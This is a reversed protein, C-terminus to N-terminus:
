HNGNKEIVIIIDKKYFDVKKFNFNLLYSEEKLMKQLSDSNYRFKESGKGADSIKKALWGIIGNFVSLNKIPESLIIKDSSQLIKSFLSHVDNHFHYLSGAIICVEAKPLQQINLLDVLRADLKKRKAYEVFYSNFDLGTWQIGANKCYQAIIIDGFCLELVNAPHHQELINIVRAFRERYGFTYLFNM